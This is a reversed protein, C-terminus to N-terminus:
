SLSYIYMYVKGSSKVGKVICAYAIIWSLVLCGVLKWQVGDGVDNISPSINLVKKYFYYLQPDHVCCDPFKEKSLCKDANLTKNAACFASLNSYEM